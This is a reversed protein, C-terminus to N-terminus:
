AIRWRAARKMSCGSIFCIKKKARDFKRKDGDAIKVFKSDIVEVIVAYKGIDRGRLVQVFQGPHPLRSEGVNM